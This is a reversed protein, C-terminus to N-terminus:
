TSGAHDGYGADQDRFRRLKMVDNRAQRTEEVLSGDPRHYASTIGAEQYMDNFEKVQSAPVGMATSVHPKGSLYARSIMPIGLRGKRRLFEKRSVKKGNIKYGLKM